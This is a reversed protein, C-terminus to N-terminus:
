GTTGLVLGIPIQGNPSCNRRDQAKAPAFHKDEEKFGIDIHCM